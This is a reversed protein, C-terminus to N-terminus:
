CGSHGQLRRLRHDESQPRGRSPCGTEGVIKHRHNEEGYAIHGCVVVPSHFPTLIKGDAGVILDGQVVSGDELVASSGGVYEVVRSNLWVKVGLETARQYLAEHFDARHVVYYPSGFNEAFESDLKTLGIVSGDEWRRFKISDPRVAKKELYKFVGWRRLLRASNPPIQIGAGVQLEGM